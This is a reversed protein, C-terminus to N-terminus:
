LSYNLYKYPCIHNLLIEYSNRALIEKQNTPNSDYSKEKKCTLGRSKWSPWYTNNDDQNCAWGEVQIPRLQKKGLQLDMTLECHPRIKNEIQLDVRSECNPVSGKQGLQLVGRSKYSPSTGKKDWNCDVRSDCRPRDKKGARLQM